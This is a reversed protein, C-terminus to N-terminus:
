SASAEKESIIELAKRYAYTKVFNSRTRNEIRSAKDIAELEEPKAKTIVLKQKNM